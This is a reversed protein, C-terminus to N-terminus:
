SVEEPEDGTLIMIGAAPDIRAVASRLAPVLREGEPGLVRYVENGGVRFVEVVEGVQRGDASEVRLGILEDWFWAEADSPRPPGELYRGSVAAAADRTGIGELQLVPTRGGSEVATIHRPETESDVWVEADVQLSAPWDTLVEIRVAGNLGKPGLIRAVARRRDSPTLSSRSNSTADM